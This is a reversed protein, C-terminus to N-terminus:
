RSGAIPVGAAKAAEPSLAEDRIGPDGAPSAGGHSAMDLLDSVGQVDEESPEKGGNQDKYTQIFAQVQANRRSAKLRDSQKQITDLQKQNASLKQNADQAQQQKQIALRTYYFTVGLFFLSRLHAATLDVNGFRRVRDGEPGAWAKDFGQEMATKFFRNMVWGFHLTRVPPVYGPMLGYYGEVLSGASLFAPWVRGFVEEAIQMKGNAKHFGLSKFAPIVGQTDLRQYFRKRVLGEISKAWGQRILSRYSEPNLHNAAFLTDMIGTIESDHLGKAYDVGKFGRALGRRVLFSKLAQDPILDRDTEPLTHNRIAEALAVKEELTRPMDKGDIKGSAIAAAYRARAERLREPSFKRADRPAVWETAWRPLATVGNVIMHGFPCVGVALAPAAGLLWLIAGLRKM